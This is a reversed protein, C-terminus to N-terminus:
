YLHLSADLFDLFGWGSESGSLIPRNLSHHSVCPLWAMTGQERVLLSLKSKALDTQIVM